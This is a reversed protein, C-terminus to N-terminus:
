IRTLYFVLSYVRLKAFLTTRQFLYNQFKYFECSFNPASIRIKPFNILQFDVLRQLIKDKCDIWYLGLANVRHLPQWTHNQYHFLMNTLYYIKNRQFFRCCNKTYWERKDVDRSIELLRGLITKGFQLFINQIGWPNPDSKGSIWM